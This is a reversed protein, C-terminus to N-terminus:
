FELPAYYGAEDRGSQQILYAEAELPIYRRGFDSQSRSQLQLTYRGTQHARIEEVISGIGQPNLLYYSRGGTERSLFELEEVRDQESVYVTFFQIDNNKLYESVVGLSYEEFPQPGSQGSSVFVIARRERIPILESAAFRVGLDLSWQRSRQDPARLARQLAAGRVGAPAQLSPTEGASVVRLATEESAMQDLQSALQGIRNTYNGMAPSREMVVAVQAAERSDVARVLQPDGLPRGGESFFFNRADLGVMARGLRNEVTVDVLITPFNESVVRDISVFMGSYLASMESLFLVRNNDFDAAVIRGNADVAATTIRGQYGSVDSFDTVTEQEINLLVVRSSDSILLRNAGYLEISEPNSLGINGIERLFNGSGDFVFISGLERDAVFVRDPQAAIGTPAEFGPFGNNNGSGAGSVGIASGGFSLLFEGEESFKAVRRNGWDTVYLAGEGDLAMYQPGLLQQEATGSEGFATIRRGSPRVKSIRDAGFESVFLEGGETLVMDFPRNFGALGGELRRRLVGNVDFLMVDNSGFSSLYFWGDPRPEVAVPREFLLREGVRAELESTVVFRGAQYLENALGRRSEVMQIRDELFPTGEGQDIITRWETLASQEFGAYYYARGLWYHLQTNGGANALARNFSLIAENYRGSHFARV